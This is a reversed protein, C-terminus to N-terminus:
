KNMTHYREIDAEVNSYRNRFRTNLYKEKTNVCSVTLVSSYVHCICVNETCSINSNLQLDIVWLFYVKVFICCRLIFYNM